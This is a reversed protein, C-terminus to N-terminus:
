TRGGRRGTPRTLTRAAAHPAPPWQVAADGSPGSAGVTAAHTEGHQDRDFSERRGLAAQGAHEAVGVAGAQGLPHRAAHEVDDGLDRREHRAVVVVDGGPRRRVPASTIQPAPSPSLPATSSPTSCILRAAEVVHEDGVGVQRARPAARRRGRRRMVSTGSRRWSPVLTIDNGRRVREARGVAAAREGAVEVLREGEARRRRPRTRGRGTARDRCRELDRGGGSRSPAGWMAALSGPWGRGSISPARLGRVVSRAVGVDASAIPAWGSSTSNPHPPRSALHAASPQTTWWRTQM